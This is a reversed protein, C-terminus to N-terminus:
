GELDIHLNPNEETVDHLLYVLSGAYDGLSEKLGSFNELILRTERSIEVLCDHLADLNNGYWDPFHLTEAFARHLEQRDQIRRCDITLELM